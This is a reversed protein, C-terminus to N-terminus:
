LISPPPRTECGADSGKELFWGALGAPVCAFAMRLASAVDADRGGGGSAAGGALSCSRADIAGGGKSKLVRLASAM